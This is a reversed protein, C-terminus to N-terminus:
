PTQTRLRAIIQSVRANSLISHLGRSNVNFLHLRARSAAQVGQRLAAPWSSEGGHVGESKM